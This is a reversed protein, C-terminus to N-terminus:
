VKEINKKFGGHKEIVKIIVDIPVYPYVTETFDNSQAYNRILEEYESPFGIEMSEFRFGNNRPHSYAFDGGQVSMHFGDECEIRPRPIYHFNLLQQYTEELWNKFDNRVSIKLKKISKM